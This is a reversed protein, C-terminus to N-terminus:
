AGCCLLLGKYVSRRASLYEGINTNAHSSVLLQEVCAICKKGKRKQYAISCIPTADSKEIQYSPWDAIDWRRRHVLRQPNALGDPTLHSVSIM